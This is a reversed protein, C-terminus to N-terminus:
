SQPLSRIPQRRMKVLCNRIHIKATSISIRLRKAIAHTDLQHGLCELVERERQTLLSDTSIANQSGEPLPELPAEAAVVENQLSLKRIQQRIERASAKRPICRDAGARLAHLLAETEESDILAICPMGPHASKYAQLLSGSTPLLSGSILLVDMQGESPNSSLAALSNASGAPAFHGNSTLKQALQQRRATDDDILFFRIAEAMFVIKDLPICIKYQVVM